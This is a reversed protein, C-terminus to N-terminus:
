INQNQLIIDAFPTFQLDIITINFIQTTQIKSIKFHSRLLFEMKGSIFNHDFLGIYQILALELKEM